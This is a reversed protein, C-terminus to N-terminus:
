VASEQGAHMVPNYISDSLGPITALKHPEQALTVPVAFVGESAFVYLVDAMFCM